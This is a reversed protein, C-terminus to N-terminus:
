DTQYLIDLLETIFLCKPMLVIVESKSLLVVKTTVPTGVKEAEPVRGSNHM